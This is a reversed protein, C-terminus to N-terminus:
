PQAYGFIQTGYWGDAGQAVGVGLIAGPGLMNARHGPSNIWEQVLSGAVDSPSGGIMAVNEANTEFVKGFEQQYAEERAEPWGDHSIQEVSAQHQSWLRVIYSADSSFAFPQLGNQARFDNTLAFIRYELDCTSQDGKYCDGAPTPGTPPTNAGSVLNSTSTSPSTSMSAASTEIVPTQNQAGTTTSSAAAGTGTVAPILNGAAAANTGAPSAAVPAGGASGYSGGGQSSSHTAPVCATFAGYFAIASWPALLLPHIRM